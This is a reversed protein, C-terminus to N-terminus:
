GQAALGWFYLGVFVAAVGVWRSWREAGPLIKEALMYLTLAALWLLNLMGAVWMLGMLAWCCGVCFWGHRLGMRFAGWTGERWETLMLALPSRCASLCATKLPTWQFVGALILLGGSLFLSQSQGASSIWSAQQLVRDLIAALVSFSLWAALYGLVLAPVSTRVRSGPKQRRSLSAYTLIMPAATPLMMAVMMVIWMALLLSFSASSGHHAHAGSSHMASDHLPGVLGATYLWALGTMAFLGFLIWFRDRLLLPTADSHASAAASEKVSSAKDVHESM